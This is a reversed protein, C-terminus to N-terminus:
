ANNLEKMKTVIAELEEAKIVTGDSVFYYVRPDLVPYEKVLTGMIVNTSYIDQLVVTYKGGGAPIFDVM